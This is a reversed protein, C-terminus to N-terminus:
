GNRPGRGPQEDPEGEGEAGTEPGGHGHSGEGFTRSELRALRRRFRALDRGLRIILGGMIMFCVPLFIYFVTQSLSIGSRVTSVLAQFCILGCLLAPAFIIARKMGIPAGPLPGAPARPTAQRVPPPHCAYVGM